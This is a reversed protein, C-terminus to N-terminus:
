KESHNTPQINSEGVSLSRNRLKIFGGVVAGVAAGFAMGMDIHGIAIGIVSGIGLGVTFFVGADPAKM